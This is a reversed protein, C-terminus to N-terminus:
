RLGAQNLRIKDPSIQVMRARESGTEVLKVCGSGVQGREQKIDLSVVALTARSSHVSCAKLKAIKTDKDSKTRTAKLFM